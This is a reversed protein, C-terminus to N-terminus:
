FLLLVTSYQGLFTVIRTWQGTINYPDQACLPNFYNLNPTMIQHSHYSNPVSEVFTRRWCDYMGNTRKKFIELNHGLVVMIAEVREWDVNGSGDEMFPGWMTKDTYNRLDYVKSCAIPYTRSSRTAVTIPGHTIPVGYLSHLKASLQRDKFSLLVDSKAPPRLRGFLASGCLFLEKNQSKSFMENLFDINSSTSRHLPSADRVLNALKEGITKFNKAKRMTLLIGPKASSM